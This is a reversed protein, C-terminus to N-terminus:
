QAKGVEAVCRFGLYPTPESYTSNKMLAEPAASGNLKYLDYNNGGMATGKKLTMESVNDLLHYLKDKPNESAVLTYAGDVKAMRKQADKLDKETQSADSAVTTRAIEEWEQPTPLRYTIKRNYRKSVVESRWQCYEVAQEYTILVVPKFKNEPLSFVQHPTHPLLQTVEEPPLDKGKLRVYEDWHVNLIETKDVYFDNVKLTGAPPDSALLIILVQLFGFIM